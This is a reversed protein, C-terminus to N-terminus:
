CLQVEKWQTNNIDLKFSGEKTPVFVMDRDESECLLRVEYKKHCPFLTDLALLTDLEVNIHCM